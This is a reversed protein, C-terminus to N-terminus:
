MGDLKVHIKKGLAISSNRGFDRSSAGCFMNITIPEMARAAITLGYKKSGTVMKVTTNRNM